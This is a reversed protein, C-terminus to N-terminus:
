GLVKNEPVFNHTLNSGLFLISDPHSAPVSSYSTKIDIRHVFCSKLLARLACMEVIVVLIKGYTHLKTHRMCM